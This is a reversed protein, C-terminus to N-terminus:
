TNAGSAPQPEDYVVELLSTAIKRLPRLLPFGSLKILGVAIALSKEFLQRTKKQQPSCDYVWFLILGLQYLWLVRPLYPRLDSATRGRARELARAMISMDKERIHRTPEGFPSLPHEPDIHASLTALLRRHPAFCKFKVDIVASLREKLDKSTTLAEEAAPIWEQQAREYFAMVIADKSDFYYYAAGLAVGADNAIDRMTTETFGRKQFRALAAELIRQRTQESKKVSQSM